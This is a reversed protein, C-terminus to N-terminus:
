FDDQRGQNTLLGAGAPNESIPIFISEFEGTLIISEDAM